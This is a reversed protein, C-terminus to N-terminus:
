RGTVTVPCTISTDTYNLTLTADYQAVSGSMSASGLTLTEGARATFDGSQDIFNQGARGTQVVTLAYRGTVAVGAQLQGEIQLQGGRETMALTCRLAPVEAVSRGIQPAIQPGIQPTTVGSLGCAALALVIVGVPIISLPLM